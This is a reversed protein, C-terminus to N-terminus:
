VLGAFHTETDEREGDEPIGGASRRGWHVVGVGALELAACQTLDTVSMAVIRLFETHRRCRTSGCPGSCLLDSSRARVQPNMGEAVIRRVADKSIPDMHPERSIWAGVVEGYKPDPVSVVVAERIHAHATLLNEIQVPFLNQPSSLMSVCLVLAM